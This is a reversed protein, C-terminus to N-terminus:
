CHEGAQLLRFIMQHLPTDAGYRAGLRIIAGTIAEYEPPRGALIDQLMSSTNDATLRCVSLIQKWAEEENVPIGAAHYVEAAEALLDRMLEIRGAGDLLEGNKVRLLATLPNITANVLLKQYVIDEINNSAFAKIGAKELLNKAIISSITKSANSRAVEGAAAPGIWTV